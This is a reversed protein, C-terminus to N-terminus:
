NGSATTTPTQTAPATAATTESLYENSYDSLIQSIQPDTKQENMKNMLYSLRVSANSNERYSSIGPIIFYWIVTGLIIALLISGVVIVTIRLKEAPTKPISVDIEEDQQSDGSPANSQMIIDRRERDTALKAKGPNRPVRTLIPAQMHGREESDIERFVNRRGKKAPLISAFISKSGTEDETQLHRREKAYEAAADRNCVQALYTLEETMLGVSIAHEFSAAARMYKGELALCIGYLLAAEGWTPYKTLLKKLAIMAIDASDSQANFVSRNFLILIQEKEEKSVQLQMVDKEEFSPFAAAANRWDM